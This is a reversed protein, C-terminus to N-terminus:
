SSSAHTFIHPGRICATTPLNRVILSSILIELGLTVKREKEKGCKALALSSM